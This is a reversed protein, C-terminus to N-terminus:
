MQQWDCRSLSDEGTPVLGTQRQSRELARCSWKSFLGEAMAKGRSGGCHARPLLIQHSSTVVRGTQMWLYNEAHKYLISCVTGHPSTASRACFEMSLTGLTTYSQIRFSSCPQPSVQRQLYVAWSSHTRRNMVLLAATLEAYPLHYLSVLLWPEWPARSVM